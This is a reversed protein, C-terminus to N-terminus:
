VKEYIIIIINMTRLILKLEHYNEKNMTLSINYVKSQDSWGQLQQHM